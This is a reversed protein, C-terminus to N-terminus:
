LETIDCGGQKKSYIFAALLMLCILIILTFGGIWLYTSDIEDAEEALRAAEEERKYQDVASVNGGTTGDTTGGSCTQKIDSGSDIISNLVRVSCNMYSCSDIDELGKTKYGLAQCKKDYVHPCNPFSPDTEQLENIIPSYICSCMDTRKFEPKLCNISMLKDCEPKTLSNFEAPYEGSCAKMKGEITTIADIANTFDQLKFGVTDIYRDYTGNVGTLFSTPPMDGEGITKSNSDYKGDGWEKTVTDTNTVHTCTGTLYGIWKGDAWKGTMSTIGMGEECDLRRVAGEASGTDIDVIKRTDNFLDSPRSCTITDIDSLNGNSHRASFGTMIYNKPCKGDFAYAGGESGGIISM